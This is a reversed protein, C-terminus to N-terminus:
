PEDRLGKAPPPDIECCPTVTIDINHPEHGPHSEKVPLTNCGALFLLAAAAIPRALINATSM